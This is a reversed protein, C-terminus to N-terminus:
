SLPLFAISFPGKSHSPQLWSCLHSLVLQGKTCREYGEGVQLAAAGLGYALAVAKWSGAASSYGICEQATYSRGSLQGVGFKNSLKARGQKGGDSVNM